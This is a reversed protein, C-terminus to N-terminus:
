PPPGAPRRGTGPALGPCWPPPGPALAAPRRARGGPRGLGVHQPPEHVVAPQQGHRGGVALAQDDEVVQGPQELRAPAVGLPLDVLQEPAVVGVVGHEPAVQDVVAEEVPGVLRRGDPDRETM